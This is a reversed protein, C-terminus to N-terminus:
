RTSSIGSNACVVDKLSHACGGSVGVASESFFGWAQVVSMGMLRVTIPLEGKLLKSAHLLIDDKLHIFSPLTM